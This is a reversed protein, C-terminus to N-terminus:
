PLTRFRAIFRECNELVQSDSFTIEERHPRGNEGPKFVSDDIKYKGSSNLEILRINKSNEKTNKRYIYVFLPGDLAEERNLTGGPISDTSLRISLNKGIKKIPTIIYSGDPKLPTDDFKRLLKKCSKHLKKVRERNNEAEKDQSRIKEKIM